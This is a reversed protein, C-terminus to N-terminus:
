SRPSRSACSPTTRLCRPASCVATSSHRALNALLTKGSGPQHAEIAHLKYPPPTMTRLLPTILAGLYNARYHESKFPFGDIMELAAQGRRHGRRRDARRVCGRCKSAPNPYTSYAPQRTTAPRTSSTGDPRFVPSHIVGRLLRLSPLMDPVDLATRAASRPFLAPVPEYDEGHKVMRYVGYTYTIRSALTSDNVPRVQAPGDEDAEGGTLVYGDEGERPTHVVTDLRRFLGAFRGRGAEVRLWDAAIAPNSADIEATWVRPPPQHQPRNPQRRASSTPSPRATPPARTPLPTGYGAAALERAAASHDGGHYLAAYAGGKSYSEGGDLPAAATTFVHLRDTGLANTSASTGTTKGPRTWYTVDDQRYHEDV